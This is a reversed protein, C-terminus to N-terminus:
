GNYTIRRFPGAAFQESIQAISIDFTAGVGDALAESATYLYAAAALEVERLVIGGDIIRLLYKEATESLPVDFGLWSDGGIRTQRIWTVYLDGNPLVQTRIHAPRYPRLGVGQYTEVFHKYSADDFPRSSPGIRYHRELGRVADPLDLQVAAGNLLVFDSGAPHSEPMVAETGFQGRLHGRLEYINPAVLNADTFQFIEWDAAGDGRIAAINAGGLVDEPTRSIVEGAAIEVQLADGHSWIGHCRKPLDTVTTGVISPEIVEANLLYGSDTASQYIAVRGTWPNGAAAVHPVHPREAGTILPLDLFEIYVPGPLTFSPRNVFRPHARGPYYIADEIRTCTLRRLGADDIRDVRYKGTRGGHTVAVVDGPSIALSSPALSFEVSDRGIATEAIWRAAIATGDAPTLAIPMDIETVDHAAEDPINAAAAGRQYDNEVQYFNVKIRGAGAASPARGFNIDATGDSTAAIDDETIAASAQGSRNRFAVVGADEIADFGNALMLPQLSQRATEPSQIVYGQVSGHLDSVDYSEFGARGAIEAVIAPLAGIGTRGSIWHGRDYNEGDSWTELREPFDPWPRADWAWVHAHTMDVMAGGYVTSAPNNAPDAWFDFHAQLYRYQIFDDRLGSSFYPMASESSKVDLFVNPQNTGKDIAACGLETFWIPKSTPSWATPTAARVGGPRDYHFSQWWNRIDKYRFVWDEGHATDAIPTRIQAARDDPSVYYWDFGEGGALNGRLYDLDYISGASADAHVSGDRWDSLPMYNDIGIFDIDPAAWLPDLHFFVDGSGDNPHYGFYESWDAAYSIKTNPGLIARVDAALAVLADVAPFTTPGSRIQTLSRLESGICFAEVGGAAVCLYASHLIFRRFSWEAPGSYVIEGNTITFDAVAATGFFTAVDAAAQATQDPSGAIGPAVDLTIRGRWPFTPQDGALTWPNTLGNGDPVDMLIFPYFMVTGNEAKIRQIAEIVAADAPTGGFAPRDDIRSVATANARTQGSVKWPMQVGDFSTQEVMPRISCNGCRLDDGFWSVVLGVSKVAPIETFLHSVALDIDATEATNNVNSYASVGKGYQYNVPTTALAYEGTGPVMAVANIAEYPSIASAGEPADSRRIVEVNFQPIRNGFQGLQLNEFVIYATGRYAPVNGAGEVAEILSDPVQDETGRYVRHTIGDLSILNGDAWVRGIRLIEGECLALALSVSYSYSVIAPGSNKDGGGSQSQQELFRTAWVVHGPIRMHGFVRAMPAGEAAGQIRLTDLRGSHVTASGSGMLQQDIASGISAGIAQGIIASSVGLVAGGISGGIVAGAASLVLTAM